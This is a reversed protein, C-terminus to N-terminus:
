HGQRVRRTPCGQENRPVQVEVQLAAVQSKTQILEYSLDQIVKYMSALLQHYHLTNPDFLPKDGGAKDGEPDSKKENGYTQMAEHYQKEIEPTSRESFGIFTKLLDREKQMDATEQHATQERGAAALAAKTAEDATKIKLYLTVGLVVCLMVFVILLVQLLGQSERAM